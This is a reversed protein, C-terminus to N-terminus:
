KNWGAKNSCTEMSLPTRHPYDENKTKRTYAQEPLYILSEFEFGVPWKDRTNLVEEYFERGNLLVSCRDYLFADASIHNTDQGPYCAAAYNQGDLQYLKEALINDFVFIDEVPLAALRKIAPLMVANDNGSKKWNFSDLIEWFLSEDMPRYEALVKQPVVEGEQIERYGKKAKDTILKAVESECSAADVFSKSSHQGQTGVKGFAVTYTSDDIEVNWFKNAEGEQNIFYRTM